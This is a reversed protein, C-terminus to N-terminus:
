EKGTYSANTSNTVRIIWRLVKRNQIGSRVVQFAKGRGSKWLEVIPQNRKM